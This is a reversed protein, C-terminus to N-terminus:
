LHKCSCGYESLLRWFSMLAWRAITLNKAKFAAQSKRNVEAGGCTFLVVGKPNLGDCMKQLVPKQQALPLHFTSDWASILDYKQPFEWTCIDAAYFTVNPHHQRALSIMEPSIDVGTPTFGNKVFVEIFRGSSGCGVDLRAPDTKVFKIARELATIGYISDVHQQQWWLAIRDYHSGTEEPKMERQRYLAWPSNNKRGLGSERRIGYAPVQTVTAGVQEGFFEIELHTGVKTCEMPLYAYVISQGVSYGYGGSSVWGVTRGGEERIPEKGLAVVRNDSLTLCCLKRTLGDAKQKM